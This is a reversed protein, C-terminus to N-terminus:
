RASPAGREAPRDLEFEAMERIFSTKEGDIGKVKQAATTLERWTFHGHNVLSALLRPDSDAYFIEALNKRRPDGKIAGILDAKSVVDAISTSVVSLATTMPDARKVAPRGRGEPAPDTRGAAALRRFERMSLLVANDAGHSTVIVTDDHGRLYTGINKIFHTAPVRKM